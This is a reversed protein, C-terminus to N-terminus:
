PFMAGVGLFGLGSFLLQRWVADSQGRVLFEQRRLPIFGAGGLEVFVGNTVSIQLDAALEAAAFWYDGPDTVPAPARVAVHFAGLTPGAALLLRVSQSRGADFTLLASFRTLGVDVSGIGRTATQSLALSGALQYGWRRGPRASFALEFGPSTAPVLGATLQARASLTLLTRPPPAPLRM